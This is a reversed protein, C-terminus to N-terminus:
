RAQHIGDSFGYVWPHEVHGIFVAGMLLSTSCQEGFGRCGSGAQARETPRIDGNHGHAIRQIARAVVNVGPLQLWQGFVALPGAQRLQFCATVCQALQVIAVNVHEVFRGARQM